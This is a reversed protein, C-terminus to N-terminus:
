YIIKQVSKYYVLYVISMYVFYKNPTVSNFLGAMFPMILFEILFHLILWGDLFLSILWSVLFFLILWGLFALGLFIECFM